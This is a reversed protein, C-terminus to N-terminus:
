HFSTTQGRDSLHEEWWSEPVLKRVRRGIADGIAATVGGVASTISAGKEMEVLMQEYYAQDPGLVVLMGDRTKTGTFPEVIPVGADGAVKTLESAAGVSSLLEDSGRSSCNKITAAAASHLWPQHMWLEGVDMQELITKLGSIHDRDPHTSIVVDVRNTGGYYKDIHEMLKQGDDSFGGDVVVVVQEDRSGHLNGWRMAIADGSKSEPGVPLFDIEYGM